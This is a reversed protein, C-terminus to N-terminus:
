TGIVMGMEDRGEMGVVEGQVQNDGSAAGERFYCRCLITGRVVDEWGELKSM